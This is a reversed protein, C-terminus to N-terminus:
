LRRDRRRLRRESRDRRLCRRVDDVGIQAGGGGRNVGIADSLVAFRGRTTRHSRRAGWRYWTRERLIGRMSFRGFPCTDVAAAALRIQRESKMSRSAAFLKSFFFVFSHGSGGSGPRGLRGVRLSYVYGGLGGMVGLGSVGSGFAVFFRFVKRGRHGHGVFRGRLCVVWLSTARSPDGQLLPVQRQFGLATKRSQESPVRLTFLLLKRLRSPSLRSDVKQCTGRIM